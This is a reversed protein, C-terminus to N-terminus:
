ASKIQWDEAASTRSIVTGVPLEIFQALSPERALVEHIAWVQAARWNESSNGCLFQWGSDAEDEPQSREAYLIPM